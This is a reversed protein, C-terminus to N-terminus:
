TARGTRILVLLMCTGTRLSCRWEITKGEYASCCLALLLTALSLRLLLMSPRNIVLLLEKHFAAVRVTSLKHLQDVFIKPCSIFRRHHFSLIYLTPFSCSTNARNTQQLGGGPRRRIGSPSVAHVVCLPTPPSTGM